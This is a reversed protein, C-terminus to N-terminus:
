VKTERQIYRFLTFLYIAQLIINLFLASYIAAGKLLDPKYQSAHEVFTRLSSVDYYSAAVYSLSIDNFLIMLFVLILVAFLSYKKFVIESIQWLGLLLIALHAVVLPFFYRGQIGFSYGYLRNFFYDGIAFIFFYILSSGILFSLLLDAQEFKRNKIILALRIAIGILSLLILRNIVQYNIAPITLSLWKYVGWYWPLTEAISHKITWIFYDSFAKEFLLSYNVTAIEPIAGASYNIAIFAAVLFGALFILEKFKKDKVLHILIAYAFIPVSILFQQRTLFGLALVGIFFLVNHATLGYKAVNICILLVAAFLLNTLSDPLVGSSAFILMPKFAILSALSIALLSNKGFLEKAIQFTTLILMIFFFASLLRIAYVRTFLDSEYTLKYPLSGLIYYLPPNNTAERKVLERRSSKPLDQISIEQSGVLGKTYPLKYEPHYTFKNNGFADRETDLIKESLAIEYSTDFGDTPRYGLEAIDQVQAFHAQEDPYQWIPVIIIWALVNFFAAALLYIIIKNM